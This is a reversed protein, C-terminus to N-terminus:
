TPTSSDLIATSYATNGAATLWKLWVGVQYLAGTTLGTVVITYPTTTDEGAKPAEELDDHPDQDKVIAAQASTLTWGNPTGPATVAISLQHSGPTIVISAPPVGGGSGPSLTITSLDTAIRLASLNKQILSNIPTMPNGIAAAIWPERAINPASKYLEQLFAFATRTETQSTSRPNAPIVRTRAYPIGKWAGYTLTKAITGSASLSMLAGTVKAM